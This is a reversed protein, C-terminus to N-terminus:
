ESILSEALQCSGDIRLDGANAKRQHCHLFQARRETLQSQRLVVIGNRPCIKQCPIEIVHLGPKQASWPEHRLRDKIWKRMRAFEPSAKSKRLKKQCRKCALLVEGSWPAPHSKM